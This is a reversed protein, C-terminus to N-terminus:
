GPALCITQLRVVARNLSPSSQRARDVSWSSQVFNCLHLNYGTGQKSADLQSIVEERIRRSKSKALLTLVTRKPDALTDVQAPVRNVSVQMTNAFGSRDALVWSEAEAVAMRFIFNDPAHAPLWTTLLKVACQGDTDAICLVPQVFKAQQAYRLLEPLLNSVGRRNISPGALQWGPLTGAVLREGLACCLM